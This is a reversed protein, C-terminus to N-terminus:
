LDETIAQLEVWDTSFLEQVAFKELAIDHAHSIVRHSCGAVMDGMYIFLVVWGLLFLGLTVGVGLLGPDDSM